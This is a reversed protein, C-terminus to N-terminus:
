PHTCSLTVRTCDWPLVSSSPVGQSATKSWPSQSASSERRSCPGCACIGLEPRATSERTLSVVPCSIVRAPQLACEIPLGILCDEVVEISLSSIAGALVTLIKSVIALRHKCVQALFLSCHLSTPSSAPVRFPCAPKPSRLSALSGCYVPTMNNKMHKRSSLLM